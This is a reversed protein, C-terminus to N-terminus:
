PALPVRFVRFVIVFWSQFPWIALPALLLLLYYLWRSGGSYFFSAVTSIIWVALLIRHPAFVGEISHTNWEVVVVPVAALGAIISVAACVRAALISKGLLAM